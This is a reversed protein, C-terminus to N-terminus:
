NTNKIITKLYYNWEGIDNYKSESIPFVGIRYNKLKLDEILDTMHLFEDDKIENFIEPEIVYMGTNILFNLEPKEKMALLQGDNGTQVTGYPIYITKLAAVMTLHNKNKRHFDLIESYNENILIDCNTVFFTTNIKNKLLYLSGATGLPKNEEVFDIKIHKIEKSKFYYRILDSKYNISLYFDSSGFSNFLQIIEESISHEGIPILPKPIINTLPKMRTGFGGAMIVVPINELKKEVRAKTDFLDEWFIVDLIESNIGIIPMYEDRHLLMKTKIEEVNDKPTAVYFNKRIAEIVQTKLDKNNIIARQIDGISILGIFVDEDIIILLKTSVEDMKQLAFRLSDTSKIFLRAIRDPYNM